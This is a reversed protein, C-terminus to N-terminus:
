NIIIPIFAVLSLKDSESKNEGETSYRLSSIRDGIIALREQFKFTDDEVLPKRQRVLGEKSVIASSLFAYV